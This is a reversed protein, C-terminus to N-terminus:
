PDGDFDVQDAISDFDDKPVIPDDPEDGTFTETSM